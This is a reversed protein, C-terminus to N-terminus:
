RPPRSAVVSPSRPSDIGDVGAVRSSGVLVILCSATGRYRAPDPSCGSTAAALLFSIVAAVVVIALWPVQYPNDNGPSSAIFANLVSRDVGPHRHRFGRLRRANFGSFFGTRPGITGGVLGYASGAHNLHQTLRVFSYGVLSVGVLGILFVLPDVQGRHRDSGSRKGRDGLDTWSAVSLAAGCFPLRRHPQAIEGVGRAHHEDNKEKPTM